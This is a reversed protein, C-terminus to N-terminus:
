RRVTGSTTLLPSAPKMAAEGPKHHANNEAQVCGLYAGRQLVVPASAGRKVVRKCVIRWAHQFDSSRRPAMPMRHFALCAARRHYQWETAIKNNVACASSSAGIATMLERRRAAGRAAAGPEALIKM